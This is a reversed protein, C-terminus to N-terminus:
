WFPCQVDLQRRYLIHKNDLLKSQVWNMFLEFIHDTIVEVHPQHRMEGPTLLLIKSSIEPNKDIARAFDQLIEALLTNSRGVREIAEQVGKEWPQYNRQLAGQTSPGYLTYHKRVNEVSQYPTM